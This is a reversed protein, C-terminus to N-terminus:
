PTGVTLFPAIADFRSPTIGAVDALGDVSAFPGNIARFTVIRSALTEGIGPVTALASEDATNLDITGPPADGPDSAPADASRRSRRHRGGRSRKGAAGSARRRGAASAPPPDGLHPVAIEDGDAVHAALNVAMTDADHTLGGARAVADIARAGSRVAYVGPHAVAGAVYVVAGAPARAAPATFRPAAALALAPTAAPHPVLGAPRVVLAIAAATVAAGAAAAQLASVKMRGTQAAPVRRCAGCCCLGWLLLLLGTRPLRSHCPPAPCAVIPFHEFGFARERVIM